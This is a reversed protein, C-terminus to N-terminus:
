QIIKAEFIIGKELCRPNLDKRSRPEKKDVLWLLLNSSKFFFFNLSFTKFFPSTLPILQTLDQPLGALQQPFFFQADKM